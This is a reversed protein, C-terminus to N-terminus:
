RKIYEELKSNTIENTVGDGTNPNSGSVYFDLAMLCVLIICVIIKTQKKIKDLINGLLPAVIYTMLIGGTAFVILGELCVRGNLNLFYGHYDWWAMHHVIELYISTAYEIIGSVLMALIFYVFPNDRFRKLLVLMLAGGAGWIPLWPGHLTGRNVLEGTQFLHLLVEFLYGAIAVIFFILLIDLFSYKRKYDFKLWKQQRSAKLMYEYAPYQEYVVEGELHIDNLEWANKIGKTKALDRLLMYSEVKTASVYANTFVLNSVNFTLVGLFYYGMFSLDLKAMEWKYGNMMKRSLLLVDKTKMNPNEALIYPVLYYSYYKMSNTLEQMSKGSNLESILKDLDSSKFDKFDGGNKCALYSLLEIWNYKIEEDNVHSSIDLKATQKMAESTVEFDVWKIYDKKETNEQNNEEDNDAFSYFVFILIFFLILFVFFFIFKKNIKFTKILVFYCGM